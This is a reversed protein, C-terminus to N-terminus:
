IFYVIYIGNPHQKLINTFLIIKDYKLIGYLREWLNTQCHLASVDCFFLPFRIIKIETEAVKKIREMNKENQKM